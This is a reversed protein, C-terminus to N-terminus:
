HSDSLDHSWKNPLMGLPGCSALSQVCPVKTDTLSPLVPDYLKSYKTFLNSTKLMYLMESPGLPSASWILPAQCLGSRNDTEYNTPQLM